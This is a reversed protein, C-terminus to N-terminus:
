NKTVTITLKLVGPTYNTKEATIVIEYTNTGNENYAPATFTINGNAVTLGAEGPLTTTHKVAADTIQTKGQSVGYNLEAKTGAQIVM